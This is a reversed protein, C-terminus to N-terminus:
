RLAGILVGPLHPVNGPSLQGRPNIHLDIEAASGIGVSMLIMTKAAGGTREINRFRAMRLLFAPNNYSTGWWWCFTKSWDDEDWIHCCHWSEFAAVIPYKFQSRQPARDNYHALNNAITGHPTRPPM